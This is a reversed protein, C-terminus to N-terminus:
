TRCFQMESLPLLPCCILVLSDVWKQPVSRISCHLVSTPRSGAQELHQRDLACARRATRVISEPICYMNILHNFIHALRRRYDSERNHKQRRPSYQVSHVPTHQAANEAGIKTRREQGTAHRSPKDGVTTQPWGTRQLKKYITQKRRYIFHICFGVSM